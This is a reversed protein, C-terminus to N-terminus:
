YFTCIFLETAMYFIYLSKDSEPCTWCYTPMIIRKVHAFLKIFIDYHSDPKGTIMQIILIFFFMLFVNLTIFMTLFMVSLNLFLISLALFVEIINFQILSVFNSPFVLYFLCEIMNTRFMGEIFKETDTWLQIFLLLSILLYLCKNILKYPIIALYIQM